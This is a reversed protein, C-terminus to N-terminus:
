AGISPVTRALAGTRTNVYLVEYQRLDRVTDRIMASDHAGLGAIRDLDRKDSTRWFFVHTAMSYAELPVWAPRQTATVLSIGISRGQQWIMRLEDGLNAFEPSAMYYLEDIFLCWGGSAFVDDIARYFVERQRDVDAIRRFPPWLVVRPAVPPTEVLQQEVLPASDGIPRFYWHPPEVPEVDSGPPVYDLPPGPPWDTVQKYGSAVLRDLTADVPKTAFTLVYDRLPLLEIATSTKGGGTPGVLTVHEGQQWDFRDLFTSWSVSPAVAGDADAPPRPEDAPWEVTPLAFGGDSSM